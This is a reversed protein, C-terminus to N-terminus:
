KKSLGLYHDPKSLFKFGLDSVITECNFYILVRVKSEAWQETELFAEISWLETLISSTTLVM